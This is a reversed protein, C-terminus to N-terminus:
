DLPSDGITHLQTEATSKERDWLQHESKDLVETSRSSPSPGTDNHSIPTATTSRSDLGKNGRGNEAAPDKMSGSECPPQTYRPGVVHTAPSSSKRGVGNNVNVVVRCAGM